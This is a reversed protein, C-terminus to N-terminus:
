VKLVHNFVRCFFFLMLFVCSKGLFALFVFSVLWSRKKSKNKKNNQKMKKMKRAIEISFGVGGMMCKRVLRRLHCLYVSATCAEASRRHREVSIRGQKTPSCSVWVVVPIQRLWFGLFSSFFTGFGLIM